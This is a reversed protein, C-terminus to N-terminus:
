DFPLEDVEDFDYKKALEDEVVTAYLNKVYASIGTKGNVEWQYPNIILDVKEIEAYDLAVATEENLETKKKGSILYLKPPAVKFSVKVKLWPTPEEGEERPALYKINWGDEELAAATEPDLIVGFNRNGSQNYQKEEGAFNRFILRCDEITINRLKKKDAM